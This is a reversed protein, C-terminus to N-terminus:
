GHTHVVKVIVSHIVNPGGMTGYLIWRGDLKVVDSNQEWYQEGICDLM